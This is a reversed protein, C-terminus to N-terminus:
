RRLLVQCKQDDKRKSVSEESSTAPSVNEQNKGAM